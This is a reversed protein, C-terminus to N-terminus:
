PLLRVEDVTVRHRGGDAPLSTFWVLWYRAEVPGDLEVVASSPAEDLSGVVDGWADQDGGPAEDLAYLELTAGPIGLELEVRSVERAQGLDLVLGVGDKLGGLDASNYRQTTWGETDPDGDHALATDEPHEGDGGFPDHDIAEAVEWPAQRDGDAGGDGAAGDGGGDPGGLLGIVVLAALPAAVLWPWAPRRTRREEDPTGADHADPAAAPVDHLTDRSPRQAPPAGAAGAAPGSVPMAATADAREAPGRAGGPPTDIARTADADGRAVMRTTPFADRADTPALHATAATDHRPPASAGLRAVRETADEGVLPALAEALAAGDAYRQAPDRRTAVALIGALDSPVDPRLTSVAPADAALRRTTVEAVTGSGFAREGTLCEWLILGLAYVDTAAGIPDGSVQEPALYAATGVVTGDDTLTAAADDLAKAVGFDAVKALGTSAILINAPKVDRHVLGREHAAALAGAVQAGIATVTGPELPARAALVDALSPGDVLEMVLHPEDGAEGIDYITVASPHALAAAATAERRFREATTPDGRLHDRLMKVAVRRGLVTDTAAWVEGAGGRGIREELQYRGGVYPPAATDTRPDPV